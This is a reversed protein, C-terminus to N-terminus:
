LLHQQVRRISHKIMEANVGRTDAAKCIKKQQNIADGPEQMTLTDDRTTTSQPQGRTRTDEHNVHLARRLVRRVRRCHETQRVQPHWNEMHTTLVDFHYICKHM